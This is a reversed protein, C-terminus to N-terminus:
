KKYVNNHLIDKLSKREKMVPKEDAYGILVIAALELNLPIKCLARIKFIDKTRSLPATMIISGLNLATSALLMNEIALSTSILNNTLSTNNCVIIITAKEVFSCDQEYLGQEKRANEYIERIQKKKDKDIIVIFEWPQKNMGSPAYRASDVIKNIIEIPVEKDKFKRISRRERLVDFFDKM